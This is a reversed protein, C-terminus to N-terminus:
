DRRSDQVGLTGYVTDGVAFAPNRSAVVRGVGGARMVAGIEVTHIYSKGENMWGRM